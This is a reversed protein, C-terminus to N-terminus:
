IIDSKKVSVPYDGKDVKFNVGDLAAIKEGGLEYIKSVNKLEIM